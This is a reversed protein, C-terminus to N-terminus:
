CPGVSPRGLSTVMVGADLRNGLVEKDVRFAVTSARRPGRTYSRLTLLELANAQSRVAHRLAPATAQKTLQAV